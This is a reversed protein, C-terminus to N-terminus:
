SRRRRGSPWEERLPVTPSAWGVGTGSAVMLERSPVGPVNLAHRHRRLLKGHGRSGVEGVRRGGEDTRQDGARKDGAGRACLDVGHSPAVCRGLGVAVRRGGACARGLAGWARLADAAAADHGAGVEIAVADGRLDVAVVEVVADSGFGASGAEARAARARLRAQGARPRCTRRGLDAVTGRPAGWAVHRAPEAAGLLLDALAPSPCVGASARALARARRALDLALRFGAACAPAAGALARPAAAGVALPARESREACAAVWAGGFAGLALRLHFLARAAVAVESPLGPGPAAVAAAAPAGPALPARAAAAPDARGTGGPGAAVARASARLLDAARAAGPARAPEHGAGGAVVDARASHGSTAPTTAAARARTLPLEAQVAALPAGVARATRAATASGAVRWLPPERSPDGRRSHAARRGGRFVTPPGAGVRAARSFSTRVTASVM